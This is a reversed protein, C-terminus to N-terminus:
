GYTGKKASQTYNINITHNSTSNDPSSSRHVLSCFVTHWFLLSFLQLQSAHVLPSLTLTLTLTSLLPIPKNLQLFARLLFSLCKGTHVKRPPNYTTSSTSRVHVSLTTPPAVETFSSLVLRLTHSFLFLLTGFHSDSCYLLHHSCFAFTTPVSLPSTRQNFQLLSSSFLPAITSFM